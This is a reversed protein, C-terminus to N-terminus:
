NFFLRKKSRSKQTLAADSGVGLSQDNGAVPGKFPLFGPLGQGTKQVFTFFPNRTRKLENKVV